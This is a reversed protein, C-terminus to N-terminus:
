VFINLEKSWHHKISLTAGIYKFEKINEFTLRERQKPDIDKDTLEM